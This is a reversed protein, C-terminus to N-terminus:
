QKKRTIIESGVVGGARTQHQHCLVSCFNIHHYNKFHIKGCEYCRIPYTSIKATIQSIRTNISGNYAQYVSGLVQRQKPEKCKIRIYHSQM